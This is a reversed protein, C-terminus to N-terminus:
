SRGLARNVPQACLAALVVKVIDPIVFPAVSTLFAAEMSVGAVFTYQVCGTVYAVVTFLLGAAVQCAFVAPKDSIKKRVLWLFGAALPVAVLYGLLFGGTPGMLVGIGGRMGSFVPVGIAGLAVYAFIVAIAQSPPLICVVLTIAFMQMTFPVPGIPVVVWASIAVLAVSLGVFAVSRARSTARSAGDRKTSKTTADMEADAGKAPTM